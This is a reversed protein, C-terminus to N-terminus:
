DAEVRAAGAVPIRLLVRTGRGPASDISFYGGLGEVREQVSLLGFGSSELRLVELRKPSFGHGSDEIDIHLHQEVDDLVGAGRPGDDMQAAVLLMEVDVDLVAAM